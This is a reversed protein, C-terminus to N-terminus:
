LRCTATHKWKVSNYQQRTSKKKHMTTRARQRGTECVSVCMRTNIASAGVSIAAEVSQGKEQAGNTRRKCLLILARCLYLFSSPFGVSSKVGALIELGTSKKDPFTHTHRLTVCWSAAGWCWVHVSMYLTKELMCVHQQWLCQIFVVYQGYNFPKHEGQLIGGSTTKKKGKTIELFFTWWCSTVKLFFTETTQQGTKNHILNRLRLPHWRGGRRGWLPYADDENGILSWNTFSSTALCRIVDLIRKWVWAQRQWGYILKCILATFIPSNSNGSLLRIVDQRHRSTGNWSPNWKRGGRSTHLSNLQAKDPQSEVMWKLKWKSSLRNNVCTSSFEEWQLRKQNSGHKVIFINCLCGLCLYHFLESQIISSSPKILQKKSDSKRRRERKDLGCLQGTLHNTHWFNNIKQKHADM